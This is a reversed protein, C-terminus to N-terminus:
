PAPKPRSRASGASKGWTARVANRLYAEVEEATASLGKDDMGFIPAGAPDKLGYKGFDGGPKRRRSAVLRLGQHTAMERLKETAQNAMNGRSPAPDAALAVRMGRKWNVMWWVSPLARSPVIAICRPSIRVGANMGTPVAAVTFATLGASTRADPASM